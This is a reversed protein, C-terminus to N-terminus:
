MDPYELMRVLISDKGLKSVLLLELSSSNSPLEKIVPNESTQPSMSCCISKRRWRFSSGLSTFNAHCYLVQPGAHFQSFLSIRFRSIVFLIHSSFFHYFHAHLMYSYRRILSYKIPVENWICVARARSCSCYKYYGSDLAGTPLKTAVMEHFQNSPYLTCAV